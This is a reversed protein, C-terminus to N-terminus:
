LDEGDGNTASANVAKRFADSMWEKLEPHWGGDHGRKRSPITPIMKVAGTDMSLSFYHASKEFV